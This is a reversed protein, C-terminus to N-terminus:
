HLLDDAKFIESIFEQFRSSYAKPNVAAIMKSNYHLSKYAHEIRKSVGYDQCIDVIGFYLLVDYCGRARLSHRSSGSRSEDTSIRVARASMEKGFGSSNNTQLWSEQFSLEREENERLSPKMVSSSRQISGRSSSTASRKLSLGSKSSLDSCVRMHICPSRSDLSGRHSSDTSHINRSDFSGEHSRKVHLGLLLSYDMIGAAELFECDHKIQLLLQDRILPDLYFRFDFDPDKLILKERLRLKNDSRGQLSGKLDYCKHMLKDSQFINSGVVFYVKMGGVPKVVHVGYLRNLMTNSFKKLHCYYSPLMGIIVKVESKRLTKITFRDDKSLLCMSGPRALSCVKRVTDDSCISQEYENNDIKELEQILRFVAPSYDKWKFETVSGPPLHKCHEKSYQIWNSRTAKFEASSLEKESLEM